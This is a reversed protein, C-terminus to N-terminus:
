VNKLSKCKPTAAVVKFWFDGKKKCLNITEEKVFYGLLQM